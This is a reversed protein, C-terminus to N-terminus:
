FKESGALGFLIEQRVVRAQRAFVNEGAQRVGAIQGVFVLGIRDWRLHAEESVLVERPWDYLRKAGLTMIHKPGSGFAGSQLVSDKQLDGFGFGADHQRQVLVEPLYGNLAPNGEFSGAHHQKPNM